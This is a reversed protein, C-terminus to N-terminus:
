FQNAASYCLEPGEFRQTRENRSFKICKMLTFIHLKSGKTQKIIEIVSGCGLVAEFLLVFGMHQSSALHPFEELSAKSPRDEHGTRSVPYGSSM